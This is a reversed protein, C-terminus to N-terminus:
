AIELAILQERTPWYPLSQGRTVVHNTSGSRSWYGIDKLDLRKSWYSM